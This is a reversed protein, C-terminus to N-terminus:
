RIRQIYHKYSSQVVVSRGTSVWVQKEEDFLPRKEHYVHHLGNWTIYSAWAPPQGFGTFVKSFYDLGHKFGLTHSEIDCDVFGQYHSCAQKEVLSLKRTPELEIRNVTQAELHSLQDDVFAYLDDRCKDFTKVYRKAHGCDILPFTVFWFYGQEHQVIRALELQANSEGSLSVAYVAVTPSDPDPSLHEVIDFM